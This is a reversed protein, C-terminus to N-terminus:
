KLLRDMSNAMRAFTENAMLMNVVNDTLANRMTEDFNKKIGKNIEDKAKRTFDTVVENAAKKATEVASKTLANIEKEVLESIYQDRTVTRSPEMWGGGIVMEGRMFEDVKEQVCKQVYEKTIQQIIGSYENEVIKEIELRAISTATEHFTNVLTHKVYETIFETDVEIKMGNKKKPAEDNYPCNEYSGDYECEPTGDSWDYGNFYECDKCDKM